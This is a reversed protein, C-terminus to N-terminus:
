WTEALDSFVSKNHSAPAFGRLLSLVIIDSILARNNCRTQLQITVNERCPISQSLSGRLEAKVAMIQGILVIHEAPELEDGKNLM